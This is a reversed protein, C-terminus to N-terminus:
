VKRLVFLKLPGFNGFNGFSSIQRAIKNIDCDYKPEIKNLDAIKGNIIRSAVYYFSSFNNIEETKFFDKIGDFVENESIYLNHWHQKIEYLGVIKRLINLAELGNKTDECMLYMGNPKLIRHLEKIAKIQNDISTLNILCRDTIITDFTNNPINKLNLIDGVLFNVNNKLDSKSELTKNAVSIMNESYDIGTIDISKNSAYCFTSYGNGCGIDAVKTENRLYKSINEIELEKLLKDPMTALIDNGYKDAQNDWFMKVETEKNLM